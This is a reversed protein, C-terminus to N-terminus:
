FRFTTSHLLHFLRVMADVKDGVRFDFWSRTHRPWKEDIKFEILFTAVSLGNVFNELKISKDDILVWADEKADAKM